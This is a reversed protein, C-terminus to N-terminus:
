STFCYADTIEEIYQIVKGDGSKIITQFEEGGDTLQPSLYHLDTAVLISVPEAKSTITLEPASSPEYPLLSYFRWILLIVGFCVIIVYRPKFM